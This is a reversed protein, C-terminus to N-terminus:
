QYSPNTTKMVVRAQSAGQTTVDTKIEDDSMSQLYLYADEGIVYLAYSVDPDNQILNYCADNGRRELTITQTSDYGEREVNYVSLTAETYAKDVRLCTVLSYGKANIHPQSYYNVESAMEESIADLHPIDIDKMLLPLSTFQYDVYQIDFTRQFDNMLSLCSQMAEKLMPVNDYTIEKNNSISLKGSAENGDFYNNNRFEEYTYSIDYHKYEEDNSAISVTYNYQKEDKIENKKYIYQIQKKEKNQLSFMTTESGHDLENIKRITLSRHSEDEAVSKDEVGIQWDGKNYQNNELKDELVSITASWFDENTQKSCSTLLIGILLCMFISTMKTKM